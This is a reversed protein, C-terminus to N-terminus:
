LKGKQDMRGCQPWPPKELILINDGTTRTRWFKWIVQRQGYLGWCDPWPCSEQWVEWWKRSWAWSGSTLVPILEEYARNEKEWRQNKTPTMARVQTLKEMETVRKYSTEDGELLEEEHGWTWQWSMCGMKTFNRTRHNTEKMQRHIRHSNLGSDKNMRTDNSGALSLSPIWDNIWKTLRENIWLTWKTGFYTYIIPVM